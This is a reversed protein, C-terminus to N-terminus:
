SAPCKFPDVATGTGTTGATTRGGAFGSSDVCFNATDGGATGGAGTMPVSAAWSGTSSKCAVTASTQLEVAAKLTALGGTCLADAAPYAGNADVALEAAARMSTMSEIASAGKGKSRATGLSVLVVSALIGIIAIVVLLEILTFGRAYSTFKKM